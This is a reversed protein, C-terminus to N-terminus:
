FIWAQIKVVPYFLDYSVVIFLPNFIFLFVSHSCRQFSLGSVQMLGVLSPVAPVLAVDTNWFVERGWLWWASRRLTVSVMNGRAQGVGSLDLIVGLVTRIRPASPCCSIYDKVLTPGKLLRRHKPGEMRPGEAMRTAGKAGSQSKPHRHEGRRGRIQTM